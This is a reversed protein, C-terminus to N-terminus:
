YRQKGRAVKDSSIEVVKVKPKANKDANKIANFHKEGEEKKKAAAAEEANKKAVAAEDEAKKKKLAEEDPEENKKEEKVEGAKDGAMSSKMALHEKVLDNVTMKKEGVMAYHDMNCMQGNMQMDDADNILKTLAVEVKSKPLTVSMAEIEASNEVKSKKLFNFMSSEGKDEEKSNQMRTLALEKDTNYQKFQEPTLIVSEAYRPNPVIALHEYEGEMVEKAYQVGHWLGSNGLRKPLYANSLKWGKAIAEHGQDGVVLFEAWHKGDAKNFFSRVVYGVEILRGNPDDPDAKGITEIDVKDVHRVYVPRGEYSPDMNKITNEAIMIRYAEKGPEKYEAVGESMHLGYFVRPLTKANKVTM